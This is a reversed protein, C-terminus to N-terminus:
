GPTDADTRRYIAQVIRVGKELVVTSREAVAFDAEEMLDDLTRPTFTMRMASDGAYGHEAPTAGAEPIAPVTVYLWGGSKLVRRIEALGELLADRSELRALSGYTVAWDFYADPYGLADIRARSIRKYADEEGIHVAVNVRVSEVNEPSPDCAFLDFGLQILAETQMGDGCGLDLVKSDVPVAAFTRLLHDSPESM